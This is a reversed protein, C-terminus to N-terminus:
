SGLNVLVSALADIVLLAAYREGPALALAQEFDEVMLGRAADITRDGLWECAWDACAVAVPPGFVSFVARRIRPADGRTDIEVRLRCRADAGPTDAVGDGHWEIIDCEALAHRPALFRPLWGPAHADTM